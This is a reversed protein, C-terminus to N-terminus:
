DKAKSHSASSKISGLQGQSERSVSAPSLVQMTSASSPDDRQRTESWGRRGDLRIESNRLSAAELVKAGKYLPANVNTTYALWRDEPDTKLFPRPIGDDTREEKIETGRRAENDTYLRRDVVNQRRNWRSGITSCAGCVRWRRKAGGELNRLRTGLCQWTIKIDGPRIEM